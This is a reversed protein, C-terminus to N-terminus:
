MNPGLAGFGYGISMPEPQEYPPAGSVGYGFDGMVQSNASYHSMQSLQTMQPAVQSHAQVEDYEFECILVNSKGRTIFRQITPLSFLHHKFDPLEAGLPGLITCELCMNSTTNNNQLDSRFFRREHIV